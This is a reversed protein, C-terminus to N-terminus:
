LVHKIRSTKHGLFALGSSNVSRVYRQMKVKAEGLVYGKDKVAPRLLNM